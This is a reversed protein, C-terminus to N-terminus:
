FMSYRDGKWRGVQVENPFGKLFVGEGDREGFSWHGYWADGNSWLYIGMGHRKGDLTEGVYYNGNEYDICSFKYSEYGTSPYTGTPIDNSFNGSYVLNGRLDYCSGRGSKKGNVMNGVFYYAGPCNTLSETADASCISLFTGTVSGANYKGWFYVGKDTRCVGYGHLAGNYAVQGKYRALGLVLHPNSTAFNMASRWKGEALQSRYRKGFGTEEGTLDILKQFIQRFASSTNPNQNTQIYFGGVSVSRIDYTSLQESIYEHRGNKNLNTIDKADSVLEAISTVRLEVRGVKESGVYDDLRKDRVSFLGSLTEGNSLLLSAKKEVVSHDSPLQNCFSALYPYDLSYLEIEVACFKGEGMAGAVSSFVFCKPNDQSFFLDDSRPQCHYLADSVKYFELGKKEKHGTPIPPNGLRKLKEIAEDYNQDASKHLWRIAEDMDKEIGLGKENLLAFRYQARANGKEAAKIYQVRAKTYNQSVGRGFEYCLGLNMMAIVNGNQAALKYWRFASALDKEVGRGLEYCLGLNCQAKANGQDAAKQYWKAAEFYNQVVGDGKEYKFALSFQARADGQEAKQRLSELSEEQAQLCPIFLFFLCLSLLPRIWNRM